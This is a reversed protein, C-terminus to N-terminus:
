KERKKLEKTLEEIALTLKAIQEKGPLAEDALVNKVASEMNIKDKVNELYGAVGNAWKKAKEPDKQYEEIVTSVEKVFAERDSLGAKIGINLLTKLIDSMLTFKSMLLSDLPTNIVRM